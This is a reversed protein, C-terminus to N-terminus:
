ERTAVLHMLEETFRDRPELRQPPDALREGEGVAAAQEGAARSTLDLVELGQAPTALAPTGPNTAELEDVGDRKPTSGPADPGDHSDDDDRAALVHRRATTYSEGTKAQRERIRRKLDRKATM